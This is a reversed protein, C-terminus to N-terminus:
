HRLRGGISLHKGKWSALRKQVREEVINWDSNRLKKFHIPMGLYKIPFDGQKCGFLELYSELSDRANGFCLIESKHFNIKLGSVQEFACLLLKMNRAKELDNEMFIITDDAYQLISLGGDILHPVVGSVQGHEKARNILIALMDAVINFLLPSLPDGQRLGKKTQFFKGVDDNVNVAVSGGMIFSKVWSIWKSSFGKMRLTQFLFPRKVKDYAKEFDIKLIVGNLRKRHMEHITEHLIVVGELINRGRMFATQTPSVVKDAIRNLRITAVKTFIKFSVNLLCIPRFKQIVNAEQVKPILTIVGFNLSFLPLDMCLLDGKIVDWFKQYFEAPFGDSGPAENHEMQFVAEKIEDETFIGTLLANETVSVRQIDDIEEENLTLLSEDPEGFLEKYFKTIYGKLNEQGEIKGDEHDLSYIRKKRHKGNAILQFYRTNNDGLLVDKVKARQYYKIEEERLLSALQDQAHGLHERELDTLDRSEAAIDLENIEAQLDTKKQKYVRNTHNAWGRLFRRVAGLKHNWRQVSNNGRIPKNWIEAVKDYFDERSFWSLEFKFQKPKGHYAPSNTDLLLPTHDSVGETTMLVRDLKKYTPVPLFNAWTFQRGTLDIERLDFSDIVANFLFPWRDSFKNNNKEKRSRMINFDGGIITPLFNNQCTRVLEALFATKFDDQAPGYVAMLIWKFNDSKNSLHFKVFFEGEVILSLKFSDANIGLLIGGSRGRPPLCHWVFDAGGPLRALNSRSMVMTGLNDNMKGRRLSPFKVEFLRHGTVLAM